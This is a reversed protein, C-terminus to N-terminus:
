VGNTKTLVFIVSLADGRDSITDITHSLHYGSKTFLMLWDEMTRAYWAHPSVFKGGLGKWADAIWRSEYPGDNLLFNPHVTQIIIRGQPKLQKKVSKLLQETSEKGYLCYNFVLCNYYNQLLQNDEIIGEYTMQMFRNESLARARAILERTADLGDVKLGHDSLARTLWGEGCGVDLVPNEGYTLVTNVMAKNTIQRSPIGQRDLLKIWENANNNWSDTTNNKM